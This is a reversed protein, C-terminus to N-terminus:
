FKLGAKLLYNIGAQPFFYAWTMETGNEYWNGGYANNEYMINFLNNVLLQLELGRTGKLVPNVSIRLNNIFYPDISREDSMTNDFYQKGVYKSVLHIGFIGKEYGIDSTYVKSPSYAIDVSGLDKNLYLVETDTYNVYYETFNLIKNSSLTINSNWSLHDTLKFSASIEVGTRYSRDVNTMISYGVNSLEGTPVLQDRYFMGYLNAAFTNKGSRVTYGAELDYLTEPRPTASPDGAAEKYDNRTPERNAVSLSIWADQRPNVSYFFGAKPNFFGFQHDQTLDKQDDDPGEMDYSIYRYQLDGFLRAKDSLNYNLKGYISFESKIGTNFYWQYDKETIGANRMWIVTGYHDGFYKNLGGGAIFEAKDKKMSVSYVLGIFHNDLWKRRIMDTSEVLQNGTFFPNIKYEELEQDERYEEYYGKGKTYHLAANLSLNPTANLGYILQYHDQNYNDSENNYYRIKGQDDTYEGAPNYTRNVPLSDRPVGWWGLGTHEEGLIINAKLRSRGSRFLGSIYASRHDSWTRDVYGDSEIDSYRIQLAFKDDIMGTSAAVMHKRTNFSGYYTSAEGTPEAGPGLTQISVTAGFAGAGTSSTGVGRQIQINDVSSALDPLDVWFVTHSEADNLPIGDVTVNIRNADTGRIRMGTYGIGNGSESTEVLSPTLSLLFPMDHVAGAKVLEERSVSTYALPTYRGARTANVLVEETIIPLPELTVNVVANGTLLVEAELTEYGIFSFKLTYSGDALNNFSYGGTHDAATGLATGKITVSAGTLSEGNSGAVSGSITSNQLQAVLIQEPMVMLFVFFCVLKMMIEDILNVLRPSM